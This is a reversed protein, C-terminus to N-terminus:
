RKQNFMADVKSPNADYIAIFDVDNFRTLPQKVVEAEVAELEKMDTNAAVRKVREEDYTARARASANPHPTLSRGSVITRDQYSCFATQM